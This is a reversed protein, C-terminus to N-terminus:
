KMMKTTLRSGDSLTTVVVNMGTHPQASAQGMVNYYVVNVPTAQVTTLGDIGTAVDPSSYDVDIRKETIYYHEGAADSAAIAKRPASSQSQAKDTSYLRAIYTVIKSENSSPMNDVYVDKVQIEANSPYFPKIDEYDNEWGTNSSSSLSNLLTEDGNHTSRWM